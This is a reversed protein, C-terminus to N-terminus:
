PIRGGTGTGARREAPVVKVGEFAALEDDGPPEWFGEVFDFMERTVAFTLHCTEGRTENRIQVRRWREDAAVDLVHLRVPFGSAAARTAFERRLAKGGFGFDLVCPVGRGAIQLVTSWIQEHCREVRAMAWASDIPQPSDMWFLRTMWEDISFIVGGLEASLRLSYTSKGAGTSGCILHVLRGTM